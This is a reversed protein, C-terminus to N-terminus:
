SQRSHESAALLRGADERIEQLLSRSRLALRNLRSAGNRSAEGASRLRDLSRTQAKLARCVRLLRRVKRSPTEQGAHIATIQRRVEHETLM